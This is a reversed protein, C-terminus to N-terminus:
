ESTRVKRQPAVPQRLWRWGQQQFVDQLYDTLRHELFGAGSVDRGMPNVSPRRILECLTEVVDLPM